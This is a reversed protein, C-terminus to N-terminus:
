NLIIRFQTIGDSLTELGFSFGHNQLIERILTLGIGQGSKKTTYFPSFIKRQVESSIPQGNNRIILQNPSTSTSIEVFTPLAEIANKLINSVVLEFHNVDLNSMVPEPSLKWEVKINRQAMDFHFIQGVQTVISNVNCAEKVPPPLKFVEAYRKVFANLAKNREIAVNIAEEYDAHEKEFLNQGYYRLSDLISNIPGISNNLEHSITRIVKEYAALEAQYIENSLEEILYFHNRFGRNVFYSKHVKFQDVGSSQLIKTTNLELESLDRLIGLNIDALKKGIVEKSNLKLYKEASSNITQVAENLDLILIGSPSAQILRELFLHQEQQLRREMRLTDLMQNYTNILSDIEKQGVSVLRMNFDKDKLSEIGANILELPRTFSYLFYFSAIFSVLFLVEVAIFWIRHNKLLLIGLAMECLHIFVIFVIFKTRYTM